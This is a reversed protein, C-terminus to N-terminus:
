DIKMEYTLWDTRTALKDYVARGRYNNDATIWAYLSGIEIEAHSFVLNPKSLLSEGAKKSLNERKNAMTCICATLNKKYM